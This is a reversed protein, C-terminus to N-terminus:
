WLYQMCIESTAKTDGTVRCELYVKQINEFEPFFFELTYAIIEEEKKKKKKKKKKSLSM